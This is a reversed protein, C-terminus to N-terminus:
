EENKINLEIPIYSYYLSDVRKLVAVESFVPPNDNIRLESAFDDFNFDFVILYDHDVIEVLKQNFLNDKGNLGGGVNNEQMLYQTYLEVNQGNSFDGDIFIVKNEEVIGLLHYKNLMANTLWNFNDSYVYQGNHFPQDFRIESAILRNFEFCFVLFLINVIVIKSLKTKLLFINLGDKAFYVLLPISLFSHTLYRHFSLNTISKGSVTYGLIIFSILTIISLLTLSSPISHRVMLTFFILMFVIATYQNVLVLSLDRVRSFQISSFNEYLQQVPYTAKTLIRSFLKDDEAAKVSKFVKIKREKDLNKLQGIYKAHSSLIVFILLLGLIPGTTKRLTLARSQISFQNNKFQYITYLIYLIAVPTVFNHAGVKSSGIVFFVIILILLKSLELKFSNMKSFSLLVSIFVFFSLQVEIYSIFLLKILTSNFSMLIVVASILVIFKTSPEFKMMLDWLILIYLFAHFITVYAGQTEYIGGKFDYLNVIPITFYSGYFKHVDIVNQDFRLYGTNFIEKANVLWIRFEDYAMYHNQNVAVILTLFFISIFITIIFDSLKFPWKSPSKFYNYITLRYKPFLFICFPLVAILAKLKISEAGSIRIHFYGAILQFLTFFLFGLFISYSLGTIKNNPKFVDIFVIYYPIGVLGYFIFLLFLEM